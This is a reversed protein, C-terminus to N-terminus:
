ARSYPPDLFVIEAPSRGLTLLVASKVATARGELNLAALNERITEVAVRDKEL